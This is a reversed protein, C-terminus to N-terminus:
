PGSKRFDWPPVPRPEGWLGSGRMRAELETAAYRWRERPNQADAYAKYHWALGARLLELGADRTYGCPAPTCDALLVRGVVRGYRDRRAWSVRVTQGQVLRALHQKAREGYPQRREPADIAELRVKHQVRLGDLLTLTDGDGVAVVTGYLEAPAAAAALLWLICAAGIRATTRAIAGKM